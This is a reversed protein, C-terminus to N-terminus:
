QQPSTRTGCRKDARFIFMATDLEFKLRIRQMRKRVFAVYLEGLVISSLCELFNTGLHPTHYSPFVQYSSFHHPYHPYIFTRWQSLSTITTTKWLTGLVLGVIKRMRM